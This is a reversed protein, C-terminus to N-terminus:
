RPLTLDNDVFRAFSEAYAESAGPNFHPNAGQQLYYADSDQPKHAADAEAQTTM